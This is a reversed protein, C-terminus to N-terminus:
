WTAGKCDHEDFFEGCKQVNRELEEIRFNFEDAGFWIIRPGDELTVVLKRGGREFVACTGYNKFNETKM